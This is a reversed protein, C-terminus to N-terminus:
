VSCITPLTLHTYSVSGPYYVIFPIRHISEYIGFNKHILGHEGAFDGHDSTYIIITNEMEGEKELYSIVRGIEEDIITILTYYKALITKLEKENEPVYPYNEKRAIHQRQFSPKSSFRYKFLDVISEPLDIDEIKYMNAKEPSPALPAHPRQFSM